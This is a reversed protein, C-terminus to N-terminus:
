VYPNGVLAVRLHFNSVDRESVRSDSQNLGSMVEDEPM